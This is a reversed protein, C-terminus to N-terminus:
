QLILQNREVKQENSELNGYFHSKGINQMVTSKAIVDIPIGASIHLM